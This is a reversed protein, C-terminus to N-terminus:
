QIEIVPNLKYEMAPRPLGVISSDEGLAIFGGLGKDVLKDHIKVATDKPLDRVDLATIEGEQNALYCGKVKLPNIGSNVIEEMAIEISKQIATDLSMQKEDSILTFINVEPNKQVLKEEFVKVKPRRLIELFKM